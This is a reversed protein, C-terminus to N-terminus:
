QVTLVFCGSSSSDRGDNDQDQNPQNTSGLQASTVSSPSSDCPNGEGDDDLHAVIRYQYNGDELGSDTFATTDAAVSAYANNWAENDM